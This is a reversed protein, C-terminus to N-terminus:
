HIIMIYITHSKPDELDVELIYGTNGNKENIIDNKTIEYDWKLITYPMKQVM